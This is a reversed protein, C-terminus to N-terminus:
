ILRAREYHAIRMESNIIQKNEEAEDGENRKKKM